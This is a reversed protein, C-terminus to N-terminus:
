KSFVNKKGSTLEFQLLKYLLKRYKTYPPLQGTFDEVAIREANNLVIYTKIETINKVQDLMMQDVEKWARTANVIFLNISGNIFTCKPLAAVNLSPYEVIIIDSEKDILSCILNQNTLIYEKSQYDYDKNHSVYNVKLGLDSFHDSIKEAIFTKGEGSESSVINIIVPKKEAINQLIRNCLFGISKRNIELAFGRHKLKSAGPVASIVPTNTLENGRFKDRVTKDLLEVILFCCVIFIFCGLFSAIILMKRKSALAGLPYIAPTVIQLTSRRMEIDKQQLRAQALHNLITQYSNERVIIERELKKLNPGVPAYDMFEQDIVNKREELLDLDSKSKEYILKQTLWEQIIDDMSAGEKTMSLATIKSSIEFLDSESKKLMEKYKIISSKSKGSSEDSFTELETIKKSLGSVTKLTQIFQKNEMILGARADLQRELNTILHGSTYNDIRAQEYRDYIDKKDETMKKTQEEFNIVVKGKSYILLSDEQIKLQQRIDALQDEFYKIVDNSSGLQLDTYEQIVVSDLIMLTNHVIGPDDCNYKIEIMDSSGLRKVQIRSILSSISYHPHSWNLISYIFNDRNDRRYNVLNNYTKEVSSKDVIKMVDSPVINRLLTYNVATIYKNDSDPNGYVLHQALLKISVKELTSRSRVLNIINDFSSNTVFFDTKDGELKPSSSIGTFITSVAEYTKPLNSTFYTVLITVLVPFILLWYRIRYLFRMIFSLKNM